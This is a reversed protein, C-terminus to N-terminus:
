SHKSKSCSWWSKRIVKAKCCDILEHSPVSFQSRCFHSSNVIVLESVLISTSWLYARLLDPFNLDDNGFLSLISCVKGGKTFLIAKMSVSFLFHFWFPEETSGKPFESVSISTSWLYSGWSIQFIPTIMVLCPSYQACYWHNWARNLHLIAVKFREIRNLM